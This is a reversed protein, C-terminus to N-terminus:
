SAELRLTEPKPTVVSFEDPDLGYKRLGTVKAASWSLCEDVLRLAVEADGEVEGTSRSVVRDVKPVLRRLEDKLEPKRWEKRDKPTHRAVRHGQTEWRYEDHGRLVLAGHEGVSAVADALERKYADLCLWVSIVRDPDDSDLADNAMAQIAESIEAPNLIEGARAADAASM